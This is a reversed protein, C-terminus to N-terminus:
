CLFYSNIHTLDSMVTPYTIHSHSCLFFSFRPQKLISFAWEPLSLPGTKLLGGWVTSSFISRTLHGSTVSFCRLLGSQCEQHILDHQLIVVLVFDPLHRHQKSRKNSPIKSHVTPLSKQSTKQLTLLYSLRTSGILYLEVM